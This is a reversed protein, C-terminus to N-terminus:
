YISESSARAFHTPNFASPVKKREYYIKRPLNCKKTIINEITIKHPISSSIATKGRILAPATYLFTFYFISSDFTKKKDCEM